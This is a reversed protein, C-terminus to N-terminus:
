VHARGIKAGDPGVGTLVPEEQWREALHRHAADLPMCGARAPAAILLTLLIAIIKM